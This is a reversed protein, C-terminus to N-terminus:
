YWPSSGTSDSTGAADPLSSPAQDVRVSRTTRRPTIAARCGKSSNPGPELGPPPAHVVVEGDDHEGGSLTGAHLGRGGLQQVRERSRRDDRVHEGRRAREVGRVDDGDHAVLAVEHRGRDLGLKRARDDDVLVLDRAGTARDLLRDGRKRGIEVALHEHQVAVHRQQVGVGEGREEPLMAGVGGLSRHERRDVVVGRAVAAHHAVDRAPEVADDLLLVRAVVLAADGLDVGADVREPRGRKAVLERVERGVVRLALLVEGVDDSEQTRAPESTSATGTESGHSTAPMLSRAWSESVAARRLASMTRPQCSPPTVISSGVVM